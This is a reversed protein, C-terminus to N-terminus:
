FWIAIQVFNCLLRYNKTTPISDNYQGSSGLGGVDLSEDLAIRLKTKSQNQLQGTNIAIVLEVLQCFGFGDFVNQCGHVCLANLIVNLIKQPLHISRTLRRIDGM